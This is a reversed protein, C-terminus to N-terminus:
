DKLPLVLINGKAHVSTLTLSVFDKIKFCETIFAVFVKM